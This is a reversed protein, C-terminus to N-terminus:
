LAVPSGPQGPTMFDDPAATRRLPQYIGLKKMRYILTTRNM